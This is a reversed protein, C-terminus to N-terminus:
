LQEAEQIPGVGPHMVESADLSRMAVHGKRTRVVEHNM